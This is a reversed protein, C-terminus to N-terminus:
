GGVSIEEGHYEASNKLTEGIAVRHLRRRPGLRGDLVRWIVRAINEATSVPGGFERLCEDMSRCHFRDVVERQLIGDLEFFNIVMGTTPDVDGEVTVHIVYNHGHGSPHNCKGYLRANEVDSLAPNHLRHVANFQVLRTVRAKM